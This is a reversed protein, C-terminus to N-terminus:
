RPASRRFRTHHRRDHTRLRFTLGAVAVTGLFWLPGLFLHAAPVTHLFGAAVSTQMAGYCPLFRIIGNDSSPNSVPNQLGTDIISLMVILFMGELEGRLLAGLMVGIGGFALAAGFFALWLVGPQNPMWYGCTIAVAYACILAASVILSTLRAALLHSHPYGAHALRHDFETARYTVIFMMFGVILTVANIASSIKTVDNGSVTIHQETARLFLPVDADNIVLVVLTIWVPIFFVVLTLALRNRLHEVVAYGTATSYRTWARRM